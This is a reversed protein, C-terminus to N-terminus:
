LNVTASSAPTVFSSGKSCFNRAVALCCFIVCAPTSSTKVETISSAPSAAFVSSVLLSSSIFIRPPLAFSIIVALWFQILPKSELFIM